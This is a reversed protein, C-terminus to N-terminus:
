SSPRPSRSQTLAAIGIAPALVFPMLPRHAHLAQFLQLAWEALTASAVAAALWRVIHAQRRPTV